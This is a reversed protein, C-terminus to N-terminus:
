PIPVVAWKGAPGYGDAELQRFYDDPLVELEEKPEWSGDVDGLLVAVFDGDEPIGGSFLLGQESWEVNGRSLTFSGGSGDDLWFTESEPLFIWEPAIASSLGVAIKLIALADGATVKGDRDVDAAIYQYPSVPPAELPGSGDPDPNPNLGVAIKLAALADAATIVGRVDSTVVDKSGSLSRDSAPNVLLTYEGLDNTTTSTVLELDGSGLVDYIGVEVGPLLSHSSWHYAHGAIPTASQNVFLGSPETIGPVQLGESDLNTAYTTFALTYGSSSLMGTLAYNNPPVGDTSAITHEGTAQDYIVIQTSDQALGYEPSDTLFAIRDGSGSAGLFRAGRVLEAGSEGLLRATTGDTTIFTDLSLNGDNQVLLESSSSFLVGGRTIQARDAEVYGSAVGDPDISQLTITGDPSLGDISFPSSWLYLDTRSGLPANLDASNLDIRSPSLMAADTTLLVQLTNGDVFIDKLKAPEALEAGGALSVRIIDGSQSDFVYVDSSDNADPIEDSGLQADSTQIALFRGDSSLDFAEVKLESSSQTISQVLNSETLGDATVQMLRDVDVGQTSVKATVTWSSASGTIIADTVDIADLNGSGAVEVNINAIYTQSQLDFVLFAYRPEYGAVGDDYFSARVLLLSEDRSFGYAELLFLTAGGITLDDLDPAPVQFFAM